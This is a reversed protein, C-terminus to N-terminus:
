RIVTIYNKSVYGTMIYDGYSIRIKLWIPNEVDGTQIEELITVPAGAAPRVFSLKDLPNIAILEYQTGTGQRVNLWSQPEVSVFGIKYSKNEEIYGYGPIMIQNPQDGYDIDSDVMWQHGFLQYADFIVVANKQLCTNFSSFFTSIATADKQANTYGISNQSLTQNNNNSDYRNISYSYAYANGLAGQSPSIAQKYSLFSTKGMYDVLYLANNTLVKTDFCHPSDSNFTILLMQWVEDKKCICLLEEGDTDAVDAIKFFMDSYGKARYHDKLVSFLSSKEKSSLEGINEIKSPIFLERGGFSLSFENLSINAADGSFENLTAYASVKLESEQEDIVIFVTRKNNFNYNQEGYLLDLNQTNNAFDDVWSTLFNSVVFVVEDQGDDDIDATATSPETYQNALHENLKQTIQDKYNKNLTLSTFKQARGNYETLEIADIEEKSIQAGSEASFYSTANTDASYEEKYVAVYESGTWKNYTRAYDTGSAGAVYFTLYLAGDKDVFFENYTVGAVIQADKTTTDFVLQSVGDGYFLEQTGDADIDNVYLIKSDNTLGVDASLAASLAAIEIKNLSSNLEEESMEKKLKGTISSLDFDKLNFGENSSVGPICACGNFFLAVAVIICCLWKAKKM